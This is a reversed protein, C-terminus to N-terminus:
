DYTICNPIRKRVPYSADRLWRCVTESADHKQISNLVFERSLPNQLGLNLHHKLQDKVKVYHISRASFMALGFEVIFKHVIADQPGARKANELYNYFEKNLLGQKLKVSALGIWSGSWNPRLQLSKEYSIAAERLYTHVETRDQSSSADLKSRDVTIAKWEFLQGQVQYYLANDPFYHLANGIRNLASNVKQISAKNPALQWIEINNKVSYYANGAIFLQGSWFFGFFAIFFAVWKFPLNMNTLFSFLRNAMTKLASLLFRSM